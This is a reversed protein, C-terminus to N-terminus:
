RGGLRRGIVHQREVGPHELEVAVCGLDELSIDQALVGHDEAQERPRAPPENEVPRAHGRELRRGDRDDILQQFGDAVARHRQGLDHTGVEVIGGIL